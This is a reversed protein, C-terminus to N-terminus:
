FKGKLGGKEKEGDVEDLKDEVVVRDWVAWWERDM